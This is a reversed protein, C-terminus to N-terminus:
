RDWSAKLQQRPDVWLDHWPLDAGRSDQPHLFVDEAMVITGAVIAARNWGTRPDLRRTRSGTRVRFM